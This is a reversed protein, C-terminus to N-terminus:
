KYYTLGYGKTEEVYNAPFLGERGGIRGRWWGDDRKESITIMDGERLMLEDDHQPEFDYLAKATVVGQTKRKEANPNRTNQEPKPVSRLQVGGFSNNLNDTNQKQQPPPQYQPTTAVSHNLSNQQQYSPQEAFMGPLAQGGQVKKTGSPPEYPPLSDEDDSLANPHNSRQNSIGTNKPTTSAGGEKNINASIAVVWEESDQDTSSHMLFVRNLTRLVFGHPKPNEPPSSRSVYTTPTLRIVKIPAVARPNKYYYLKNEKLVFWRKKWNKRVRGQKTLYGTRDADRSMDPASMSSM